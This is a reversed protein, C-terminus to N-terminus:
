QPTLRLRLNIVDPQDVGDEAPGDGVTMAAWEGPPVGLVSESIAQWEGELWAELRVAMWVASAPAFPDDLPTVTVFLRWEDDAWLPTQRHAEILLPAITHPQGALSLEAEVRYSSTEVGLATTTVSALALALVGVLRRIL